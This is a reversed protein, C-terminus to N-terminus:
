SIIKNQKDVEPWVNPLSDARTALDIDSDNSNCRPQELQDVSMSRARTDYQHVSMKKLTICNDNKM